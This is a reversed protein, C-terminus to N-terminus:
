HGFDQVNREEHGKTIASEREVGTLWIFTCSCYEESFTWLPQQVIETFSSFHQHAQLSSHSKLHRNSNEKDTKNRCFVREEETQKQETRETKGWAIKRNCRYSSLKTRHCNNGTKPVKERDAVNGWLSSNEWGAYSLEWVTFLAVM